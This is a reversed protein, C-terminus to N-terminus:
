ARAFRWGRNSARRPVVTHPRDAARHLSWGHDDRAPHSATCRGESSSRNFPFVGGGARPQGPILPEFWTAAIPTSPRTSTLVPAVGWPTAFESMEAAVSEVDGTALANLFAAQQNAAHDWLSPAPVQQEDLARRYAKVIREAAPRALEIPDPRAVSLELGIAGNVGPNMFGARSYIALAAAPDIVIPSRIM